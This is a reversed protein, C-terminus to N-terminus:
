SKSASEARDSTEPARKCSRLVFLTDTLTAGAQKFAADLVDPGGAGILDAVQKVSTLTENLQAVQHTMEWHEPAGPATLLSVLYDTRGEMERLREEFTAPTMELRALAAESVTAGLQAGVHDVRNLVVIVLLCAAIVLLATANVLALLVQGPLRKIRIKLEQTDKVM